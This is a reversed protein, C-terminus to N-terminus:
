ALGEGYLSIGSGDDSEGTSGLLEKIIHPHQRTFWKVQSGERTQPCDFVLKVRALLDDHSLVHPWNFMAHFGFHKDPKRDTNCGEYAFDWAVNEPAWVFGAEELSARHVRCLNNDNHHDEAPYKDRRDHLYRMLATSKLCFGGNGVNKGDKYWWPAGIYDYKLFEDRWMEPHWIWADWQIHLAHSTKLRPVVDHCWGRAWSVQDPYDPETINIVDGFRAAKQCDDIALQQLETARTEVAVLTVDPLKLM